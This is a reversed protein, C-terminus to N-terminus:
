ISIDVYQTPSERRDCIVGIFYLIHQVNHYVTNSRIKERKQRECDKMLRKTKRKHIEVRTQKRPMLMFIRVCKTINKGVDTPM